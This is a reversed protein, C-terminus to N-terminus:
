FIFQKLGLLLIDFFSYTFVEQEVSLSGEIISSDALTLYLKAVEEGVKYPPNKQIMEIRQGLPPKTAGSAEVSGIDNMAILNVHNPKGKDLHISEVVSGKKIYNVFKYQSFGYDMLAVAEKNRIDRTPEKMVVAIVRFNDRKATSTICYMSEQTFGTKLGDAGQYTKVLKNTNVLWFKKETNERIYTDYTSSFRFIDDQGEKILASAILAMDRASSYHDDHHLGTANTFHTNELGLKKSTENMTAVFNEESGSVKEALAVIADNASAVASAKMLDEVSMKENVELYIQSGGMSSAHESAIVEDDWNIKGAHIAEIVLLISMMKTMSAPYLRQDVNKEYLIKGSAEDILIASAANPTIDVGQATTASCPTIFLFMTLCLILWKKM